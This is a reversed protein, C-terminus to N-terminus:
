SPLRPVDHVSYYLRTFKGDDNYHYIALISQTRETGDKMNIYVTHRDAVIKQEKDVILDEIHFRIKSFMERLKVLHEIVDEYKKEEGNGVQVFNSALYPKVDEIVADHSPKGVVLTTIFKIMFAKNFKSVSEM